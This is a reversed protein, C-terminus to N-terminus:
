RAFAIAGVDTLQDASPWITLALSALCAGRERIRHEDWATAWGPTTATRLDKALRGYGGECAAGKMRFQATVSDTFWAGADDTASTLPSRDCVVLGPTLPPPPAPAM